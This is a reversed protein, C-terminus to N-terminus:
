LRRGMAGIAAASARRTWCAPLPPSEMAKRRPRWGGLALNREGARAGGRSERSERLTKGDVGAERGGSREEGSLRRILCALLGDPRTREFPRGFAGKDPMGRPLELFGRPREDRGWEGMAEFDREGIIAAALAIALTDIAKHRPGGWERRSERVGSLSKRM